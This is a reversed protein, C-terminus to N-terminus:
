SNSNKWTKGASKLFQCRKEEGAPKYDKVGMATAPMIGRM